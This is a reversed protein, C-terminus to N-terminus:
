LQRNLRELMLDIEAIDEATLDYGPERLKATALLGQWEVLRHGRGRRLQAGVEIAELAIRVPEPGQLVPHALQVRESSIM